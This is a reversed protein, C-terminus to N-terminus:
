NCPNPAPKACAVGDPMGRPGRIQVVYQYNLEVFPDHWWHVRTFPMDSNPRSDTAYADGAAGYTTIPYVRSWETKWGNVLRSTPMLVDDNKQGAFMDWFSNWGHFIHHDGLTGPQGIVADRTDVIQRVELEPVFGFGVSNSRQNDPARVVTISGNFPGIGTSDPVRVGILTDSWAEVAGAQEMGPNVAYFVSGGQTGFGSGRILMLQRPLAQTVDTGSVQPPPPPPPAAPLSDVPRVPAIPRLREAATPAVTKSTNMGVARTSVQQQMRLPEISPRARLEAAARADDQSKAIQARSQQLLGGLQTRLRARANENAARRQPAEANFRAQLTAVDAPPSQVAVTGGALPKAAAAPPNQLTIRVSWYPSRRIDEATVAYDLQIRDSGAQQLPHPGNLAVIVPAGQAQVEIHIPGPQTVAFGFSAPARDALEFRQPWTPGTQSYATHAACAALATLTARLIRSSAIRPTM